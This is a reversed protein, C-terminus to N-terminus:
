LTKLPPPNWSGPPDQAGQTAPPALPGEKNSM